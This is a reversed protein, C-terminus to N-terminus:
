RRLSRLRHDPRVAAADGQDPPQHLRFRCARTRRGQRNGREVISALVVFEEKTKLPLDPDRKEWIQDVLKQQAAAMQSVIEARKTGRSYKYTDPRLSGEVPLQAPLEGELVTDEALKKFMQRVTLGEPFSIAYLISKGSKLLDMIEKMTAGAKIEYEGAKLTEGEELYTSTM